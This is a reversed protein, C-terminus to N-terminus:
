LCAQQLLQSTFQPRFYFGRPLTRIINGDEDMADCLTKANAAKPRLQIIEGHQASVQEVRGTQIFTMMDNWDQQLTIAQQQNPQWLFASGVRRESLPITQTAQIPVWLIHRTKRYLVSDQWQYGPPNILSATCIFTSEQVQGSANVPLTKLEIGLAPFDPEAANGATTGLCCEILDGVWGKHQLLNEPATLCKQAALNGLSQGALGRAQQLLESQTHATSQDPM